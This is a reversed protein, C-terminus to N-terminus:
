LYRLWWARRRQKVGAYWRCVPYLLLIAAAWAIYTAGLGLMASGAPGPPPKAADMGYLAFSVPIATVRLLYLHLVYFFLPVRGFVLLVARFAGNRWQEFLAMLCLAPGLTMLLYLLSPPYKSTNLFSLLTLRGSPQPAWPVPDGYINLARLSVFAAISLLGLRLYLSRRQKFELNESAGFWYGIAIVGIWPLLPYSVFLTIGVPLQARGGEYAITWLLAARDFDSPLLWDFTNHGFIIVLGILGVRAPGFYSLAALAIMSWGIIWIVQLLVFRYGFEPIWVYKCATIELLILWLGRSLLFHRLRTLNQRSGYLYASTGALFVFVPACIHTVWRTFFLPVTTVALDTPNPTFGGWFDRAHDLAMIVMVLGRLLDITQNRQPLLNNPMDDVTPPYYGLRQPKCRNVTSGVFYKKAQHKGAL